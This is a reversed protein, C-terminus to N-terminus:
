KERIEIIEDKNVKLMVGDLTKLEYFETKKNFKPENETVITRGDKLTLVYTTACATFTLLFFFVMCFSITRKV